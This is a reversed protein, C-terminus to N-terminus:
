CHAQQIHYFITQTWIIKLFDFVSSRLSNQILSDSSKSDTYILALNHRKKLIPCCIGWDWECGILCPASYKDSSKMKISETVAMASKLEQLKMDSKIDMYRYRKLLQKRKSAFCSCITYSLSHCPFIYNIYFSLFIKFNICFAIFFDRCVHFETLEKHIVVVSSLLSFSM